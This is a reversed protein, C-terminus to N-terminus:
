VCVGECLVCWVCVCWMGCICLCMMCECMCVCWMSCVDYVGYVGCVYWVYACVCISVSEGCM